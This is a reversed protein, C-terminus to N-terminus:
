PNAQAPVDGAFPVRERTRRIVGPDRAILRVLKAAHGANLSIFSGLNPMGKRANRQDRSEVIDSRSTGTAPGRSVGKLRDLQVAPTPVAQLIRSRLLHLGGKGFLFRDVSMANVLPHGLSAQAAQRTIIYAASGMQSSQLERLEVPGFPTAGAGLLVRNRRTELKLLDFGLQASLDPATFSTISDALLADDELVLASPINEDVMRQWILQHSLGCALDGPSVPWLIGPDDHHTILAPPVDAITVASIREANLHLRAFQEEMFERRDPRSDLNIYFIPLQATM